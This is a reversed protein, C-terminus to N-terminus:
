LVPVQQRIMSVNLHCLSEWATVDPHHLQEPRKITLILGVMAEQEEVEACFSWYGGGAWILLKSVWLGCGLTGPCM